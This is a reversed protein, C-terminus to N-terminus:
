REGFPWKELCRSTLEVSASIVGVQRDLIIEAIRKRVVALDQENAGGEFQLEFAVEGQRTMSNIEAVRPLKIIIREVPNTVTAEVREPLQERVQYTVIVLPVPAQCAPASDPSSALAVALALKAAFQMPSGEIPDARACSQANCCSQIDTAGFREVVGATRSEDLATVTATLTRAM